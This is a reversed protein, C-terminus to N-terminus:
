GIVAGGITVGARIAWYKWGKAYGLRRAVYDGFFWGGIAGIAACAWQIPTGFHGSEDAMNVPNNGCYAFLNTGDFVEDANL